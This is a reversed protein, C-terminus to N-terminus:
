WPRHGEVPVVGVPRGCSTPLGRRCAISPRRDVVLVLADLDRSQVAIQERHAGPWEGTSSRSFAFCVISRGWFSLVGDGADIVDQVAESSVGGPARFGCSCYVILGSPPTGSRNELSAAPSAPSIAFLRNQAAAALVFSRSTATAAPSPNLALVTANASTSRTAAGRKRNRTQPDTTVM